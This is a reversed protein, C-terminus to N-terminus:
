SATVQLAASPTGAAGTTTNINKVLIGINKGVVQPGFKNTFLHVTASELVFPVPSGAYPVVLLLRHQKGVFQRGASIPATAYIAASEGNAPYHTPTVTISTGTVSNAVTLAGPSSANLNAPATTLPTGTVTDINRSLQQYLQLGTLTVSQGFRDKKPTAKALANFSAIAPAGLASWNKSHASFSSRVNRQAQTRPQIPSVKKRMFNGAHGKTAVIGGIKRRADSVIPGYVVLAM